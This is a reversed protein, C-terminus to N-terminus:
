SLTFYEYINGDPPFVELRLPKKQKTSLWFLWQAAMPGGNPRWQAAMPGGNDLRLGCVSAVNLKKVCFIARISQYFLECGTTRM